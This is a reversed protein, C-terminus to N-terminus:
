HRFFNQGTYGGPPTLPIVGKEVGYIHSFHTKARSGFYIIVCWFQKPLNPLDRHTSSFGWLIKKRFKLSESKKSLTASKPALKSFEYFMKGRNFIKDLPNIVGVLISSENSFIFNIHVWWTQGCHPPSFQWKQSGILALHVILDSLISQFWFRIFFVHEHSYRKNQLFIKNM